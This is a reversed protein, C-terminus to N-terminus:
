EPQGQVRLLERAEAERTSLNCAHTVIGPLIQSRTMDDLRFFDSNKTRDTKTKLM